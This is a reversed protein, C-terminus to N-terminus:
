AEPVAIVKVANSHGATCLRQYREEGATWDDSFAYALLTGSSAELHVVAVGVALAHRRQPQQGLRSAPSQCPRPVKPDFGARSELVCIGLRRCQGYLRRQQDRRQRRRM